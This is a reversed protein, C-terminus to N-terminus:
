AAVVWVKLKAEVDHSLRVPVTYIGVKKIPEDLHIQKRDVEVGQERLAGEIDRNTISGFLRDQEGVQAQITVSLSEIKAAVAEFSRKRKAAQEAILKRQHDIRRMSGETAPVAKGQPILYNRGFGDAVTVLEGLKGVNPVDERLIVKM